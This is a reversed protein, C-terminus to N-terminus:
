NLLSNVEEGRELSYFGVKESLGKRIMRHLIQEGGRGVM